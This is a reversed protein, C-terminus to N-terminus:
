ARCLHHGLRCEFYDTSDPGVGVSSAQTTRRARVYTVGNERLLRQVAEQRSEMEVLGLTDLAQMFRQWHPNISKDRNLMEDIQEGHPVDARKTHYSEAIM